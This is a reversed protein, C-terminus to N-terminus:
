VVGIHEASLREEAAGWVDLAPADEARIQLQDGNAAATAIPSRKILSRGQVPIYVTDFAPVTVRGPSLVTTGAETVLQVEVWRATATKNYVALPTLLFIEGPRIARTNDAPDRRTFSGSPDPVSFDPANALTTFTTPIDVLSLSLPKGSAPTKCTIRPM